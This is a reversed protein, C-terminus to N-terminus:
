MWIRMMNWDVRELGGNGGFVYVEKAWIGIGTDWCFTLVTKVWHHHYSASDANVFYPWLGIIVLGDGSKGWTYYPTPKHTQQLFFVIM